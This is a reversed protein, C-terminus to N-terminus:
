WAPVPGAWAMSSTLSRSVAVLLRRWVLSEVFVVFVVGFVMEQVLDLIM